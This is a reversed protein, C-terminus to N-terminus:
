GPLGEVALKVTAFHIAVIDDVNESYGGAMSVAVPIARSRLADFVLRDRAELGPMTLKMRGFRDALYPDAGALYIALDARSRDIGEALGADLAALYADDDTGDPLPVDLDSPPKRLPYNREGHISFTFVTPDDAFILATGDGQHVDCDVILVRRALGEAQMARAAIASDNFVCYGACRNPAAHHTGGALNVGFSAGTLVDRAAAITAGASRRSREILQPSWPFGLARAEEALFQGSVARAFYDSDHARLIEQDTAAPPERLLEPPVIGSRELRDRLRAYKAMPFRHWEPLPLVFRDSFYIAM